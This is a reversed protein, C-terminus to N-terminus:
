LFQYRANLGIVVAIIALGVALCLRIARLPLKQMQALGLSWGLAIAAVGGIAGGIFATNPYVAWAALAFIAFRASDGIQRALLVAGIAIYSRTPEKMPKVKVPWALEAAGFLLALAVLMQAAHVPLMDAMTAGAFAMIAASTVACVAGTVLLPVTRALSQAFHAVILQERSGLAIVFTAILAILFGDM